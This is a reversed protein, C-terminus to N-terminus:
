ARGHGDMWSRGSPIAASSSLLSSWCGGACSSSLSSRCGGAGVVVVVVILLGRCFLGLRTTAVGFGGIGIGLCL